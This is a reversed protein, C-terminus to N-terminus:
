VFVLGPVKGYMSNYRNCGLTCGLIASIGCQVGVACSTLVVHAGLSRSWMLPMCKDLKHSTARELCKVCGEWHNAVCSGGGNKLSAM